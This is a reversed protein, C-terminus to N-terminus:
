YGDGAGDLSAPALIVAVGAAAGCALTLAVLLALLKNLGGATMEGVGIAPHVELRVGPSPTSDEVAHPWDGVGGARETASSSPELEHEIM